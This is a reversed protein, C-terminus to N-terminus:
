NILWNIVNKLVPNKQTLGATYVLSAEFDFEVQKKKGFAAILPM